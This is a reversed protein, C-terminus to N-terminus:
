QGRHHPTRGSDEWLRGLKDVLGLAPPTGERGELNRARPRPPTRWSSAVQVEDWELFELIVIALEAFLTPGRPFTRGGFGVKSFVSVNVGIRESSTQVVEVERPM